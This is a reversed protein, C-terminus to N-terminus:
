EIKLLRQTKIGTTSHYLPISFSAKITVSFYSVVTRGSFVLRRQRDESFNFLTIHLQYFRLAKVSVSVQSQDSLLQFCGLFPKIKDSQATKRVVSLYKSSEVNIEVTPFAKYGNKDNMPETIIQEKPSGHYFVEKCIDAIQEKLVNTTKKLHTSCWVKREYQFYKKVLGFAFVIQEAEECLKQPM